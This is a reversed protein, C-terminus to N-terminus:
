VSMLEAEKANGATDIKKVFTDTLKQIEVELDKLEDESIDKDDESKKAEKMAEHRVQRIAVKAHEMKQHLLKVYEQRREETLAPLKIRIIEGDITGNIGLGANNIAKAVEGIVSQDWPKVILTQADEVNVSALELVKLVSAGGYAHVEVDQVMAPSAKGARIRAIEDVFVEYSTGMKSDYESVNM